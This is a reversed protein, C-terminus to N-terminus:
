TTAPPPRRPPTISAERWGRNKRESPSSYWHAISSTATSSAHASCSVRPAPRMTTPALLPAIEQPTNKGPIVAVVNSKYLPSIEQQGVSDIGFSRFETEIWDAAAQCSDHLVYRSVFNQLRQVYGDIVLGSVEAVMDEILANAQASVRPIVFRNAARPTVVTRMFVRQVDFGARSLRDAAGGRGEVVAAGDELFLVHAVEALDNASDSSVNSVTYYTKDDVSTDLLRYSLRLAEIRELQPEDAVALLYWGANRVVPVGLDLLRSVADTPPRDIRVLAGQYPGAVAHTASLALLIITLCIRQNM